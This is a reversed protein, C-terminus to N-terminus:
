ANELPARKMRTSGSCPHTRIDKFLDAILQPTRDSSRDDVLHIRKKDPYASAGSTGPGIYQNRMERPASSPSTVDRKACLLRFGRGFYLSLFVYFGALSLGTIVLFGNMCGGM